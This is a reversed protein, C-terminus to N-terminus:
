GRGAFVLVLALRQRRDGRLDALQLFDVAVHRQVPLPGRALQEHLDAAEVFLDEVLDRQRGAEAGIGDSEIAPLEAAGADDAEFADPGLHQHRLRVVAIAGDRRVLRLLAGHVIREGLGYQPAELDFRFFTSAHKDVGGAEEHAVRVADDIAQALRLLAAVLQVVAAAREIQAACFTKWLVGLDLRREGEGGVTIWPAVNAVRRRRGGRYRQPLM